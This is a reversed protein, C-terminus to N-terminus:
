QRKKRVDPATSTSVNVVTFWSASGTVSCYPLTFVTAASRIAVFAAHSTTPTIRTPVDEVGLPQREMGVVYVTGSLGTSTSAATSPSHTAVWGCTRWGPSDLAKQGFYACVSAICHM